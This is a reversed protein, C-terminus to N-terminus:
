QLRRAPMARCSIRATAAPRGRWCRVRRASSRRRPFIEFRPRTRRPASTTRDSPVQEAGSRGTLSRIRIRRRSGPFSALSGLISSLPIEGTFRRRSDAAVPTPSTICRWGWSNSIIAARAGGPRRAAPRADHLSAEEPVDDHVVGLRLWLGPGSAEHPIRFSSRERKKLGGAVVVARM